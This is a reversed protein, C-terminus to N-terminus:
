SEKEEVFRAHFRGNSYATPLQCWATLLRIACCGARRELTELNKVGHGTLERLNKVSVVSAAAMM